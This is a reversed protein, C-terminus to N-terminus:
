GSADTTNDIVTENWANSATIRINHQPIGKCELRATFNHLEYDEPKKELLYIDDGGKGGKRNSTLLAKEDNLFFVFVDDGTSNFPEPLLPSAKWQEKRLAKKLDYGGMGGPANSSYLIDGKHHSPFIENASSNVMAGPNVPESWGSETKYTFWIDMFIPLAC